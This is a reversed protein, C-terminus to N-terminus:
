GPDLTHRGETPAPAVTPDATPTASAAAGNPSVVTGSDADSGTDPGRHTAKKALAGVKHQLQPATDKVAQTAGSVKEQVTPNHWLERSQDRMKEYSQRGARSGVVFGVAVGAAFTLAKMM